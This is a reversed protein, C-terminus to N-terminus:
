QSKKCGFIKQLAIGSVVGAEQHLFEPHERMFREVILRAQAADISNACLPFEDKSLNHGLYLGDILGRVYLTCGVDRDGYKPATCYKYLEAATFSYANGALMTSLAVVIAAATHRM